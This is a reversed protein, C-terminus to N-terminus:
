AWPKSEPIEARGYSVGWGRSSPFDLMAQELATPVGGTLELGHLM